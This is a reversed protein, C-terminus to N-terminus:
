KNRLIVVHLGTFLTQTSLISNEFDKDNSKSKFDNESAPNQNGNWIVKQILIKSKLKFDKKFSKGRCGIQANPRCTEKSISRSVVHERDEWNLESAGACLTSQFHLVHFYRFIAPCSFALCSIAFFQFHLVHFQLVLLQLVRRSLDHLGYCYSLNIMTSYFAEVFIRKLSTIIINSCDSFSVSILLNYVHMFM